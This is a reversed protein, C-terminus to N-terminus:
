SGNRGGYPPHGSPFPARRWFSTLCTRIRDGRGLKVPSCPIIERCAPADLDRLAHGRVRVSLRRPMSTAGRDVGALRM